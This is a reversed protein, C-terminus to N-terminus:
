SVHFAFGLLDENIDEVFLIADSAAFTHGLYDSPCILGELFHLVGILQGFDM